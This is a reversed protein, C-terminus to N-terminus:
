DLIIKPSSLNQDLGEGLPAAELSSELVTPKCLPRVLAIALSQILVM